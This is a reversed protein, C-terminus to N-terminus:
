TAAFRALVGSEGLLELGKPTLRFTRTAELAAFYDRELQMGQDCAMRTAGLASFTLRSGEVAYGGSFSNCGAFGSAQGDRLRLTAARDQAGVGAPRGGLEALRWEGGALSATPGTGTAAPQCAALGLVALVTLLRRFIRIRM